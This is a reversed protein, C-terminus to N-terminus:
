RGAKEQSPAQYGPGGTEKAKLIVTKEEVVALRDSDFWELERPMGEKDTSALGYTVCGWLWDSRGVAIGQFGTVKDMVKSGLKIMETEKFRLSEGMRM